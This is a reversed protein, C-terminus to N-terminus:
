EASSLCEGSAWNPFWILPRHSRGNMHKGASHPVAHDFEIRDACFSKTFGAQRSARCKGQEAWISADPKQFGPMCSPLFYLVLAVKSSDEEM